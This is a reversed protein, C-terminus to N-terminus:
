KEASIFKESISTRPQANFPNTNVTEAAPAQSVPLLNICIM